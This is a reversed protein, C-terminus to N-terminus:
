SHSKIVYHGGAHKPCGHPWRCFLLHIDEFIDEWLYIQLKANVVRFIAVNTVSVHRHDNHLLIVNMFGFHM